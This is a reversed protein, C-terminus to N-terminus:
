LYLLVDGVDDSQLSGLGDGKGDITRTYHFSNDSPDQVWFQIAKGHRTAICGDETDKINVDNDALGRVRARLETATMRVHYASSRTLDRSTTYSGNREDRRHLHNTSV